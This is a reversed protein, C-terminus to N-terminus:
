QPLGLHVFYVYAAVLMWGVAPPLRRLGAVCILHVSTAALLILTGGSFYWPVTLPKYLAFLGMCLPICIHNDGVQSTYVVEPRKTWGYYAALLANPLVMLWGSLWGLNKASVFGTKINSLWDVLWDTSFYVAFGCIAVVLLDLPLMRSLSKHQKANDRLVEFVNCGQWLLFLGTLIIGGSRGIERNRGLLWAVGTFVAVAVLTIILSARNKAAAESTSKDGSVSPSQSALATKFDMKCFVATLGLILTMNTVNNVLCNTLLESALGNKSALVWTFILNGMGTLYPTVLTGIVTGELGGSYINELRWISVFSGALFLAVMLWPGLGGSQDLM